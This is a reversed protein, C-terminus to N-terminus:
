KSIGDTPSLPPVWDTIIIYILGGKNTLILLSNTRSISIIIFYITEKLLFWFQKSLTHSLKWLLEVKNM